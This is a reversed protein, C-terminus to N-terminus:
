KEAEASARKSAEELGKGGEATAIKQMLAKASSVFHSFEQNASM